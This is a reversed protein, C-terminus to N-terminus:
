DRNPQATSKSHRNVIDDLKTSLGPEFVPVFIALTSELDGRADVSTPGWRPLIVPGATVRVWWFVQASGQPLGRPLQWITRTSKLRAFYNSIEGRRRGDGIDAETITSDLPTTGDLGTPILARTDLLSSLTPRAGEKLGFNPLQIQLIEEARDNGAVVSQAAFDNPASRDVRCEVVAGPLGRLRALDKSAVAVRRSQHATFTLLVLASGCLSGLITWSYLRGVGSSPAPQLAIALVGNDVRATPVIYWIHSNVILRTARSRATGSAWADIFGDSWQASDVLEQLDRPIAQDAGLPQVTASGSDQIRLLGASVLPGGRIYKVLTLVSASQLALDACVIGAVRVSVGGAAAPVARCITQVIGAGAIDIYPQSTYVDDVATAGRQFTKFYERSAWLLNKPLRMIPDVSEQRWYRLVSDPSIFYAATFKRTEQERECSAPAVNLCCSCATAPTPMADTVVARLAAELAFSIGVAEKIRHGVTSNRDEAFTPGRQGATVFEAVQEPVQLGSVNAGRFLCQAKRLGFRDRTRREDDAIGPLAPADACPHWNWHPESSPVPENGVETAAGGSEAVVSVSSRPSDSKPVVSSLTAIPVGEFMRVGDQVSAYVGPAAGESLGNTILIARVDAINVSDSGRGNSALPTADAPASYDREGDQAILRAFQITAALVRRARNCEKSALPCGGQTIQQDPRLASLVVSLASVYRDDDRVLHDSQLFEDLRKEDNQRLSILNQALLAATTVIIVYAVFFGVGENVSTLWLYKLRRSYWRGLASPIDALTGM